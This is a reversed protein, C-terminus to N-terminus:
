IESVALIYFNNTISKLLFEIYELKNVMNRANIHIFRWDSSMRASENRVTLEFTLYYNCPTSLLNYKNIDSDNDDNLLITKNNLISFQIQLNTDDEVYNFPLASANKNDNRVICINMSRSITIM